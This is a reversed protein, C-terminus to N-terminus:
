DLYDKLQRALSPRRLKRLARAELQRIRDRCLPRGTRKNTVFKGVEELTRSIGDKLGYRLELVEKERPNLRELVGSIGQKLIDNDMASEVAELAEAQTIGPPLLGARRGETLRIIQKEELEAARHGFLGERVAEILSPPFLYNQSLKLASCIEDMAQQSPIIRLTETHGIYSPNIGTLQSLAKQTWGKAKRADVLRANYPIFRLRVSKKETTM